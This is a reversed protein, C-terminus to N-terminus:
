LDQISQEKLKCEKFHPCETCAQIRKYTTEETRAVRDNFNDQNNRMMKAIKRQCKLRM